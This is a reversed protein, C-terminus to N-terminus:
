LDEHYKIWATEEPKTWQVAGSVANHYFTKGPHASDEPSTNEHWAGAAGAPPDWTVEGTSEGTSPDVVDYYARGTEEDEYGLAKPREYTSEGTM